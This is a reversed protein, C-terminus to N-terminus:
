PTFKRNVRSVPADHVHELKKIEADLASYGGQARYIAAVPEPTKAAATAFNERQTRLHDLYLRFDRNNLLRVMAMQLQEISPAADSM